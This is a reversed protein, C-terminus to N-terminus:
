LNGQLLEYRKAVLSPKEIIGATRVSNSLRTIREGNQRVNIKYNARVVVKGLYNADATKFVYILAPDEIDFLIAQPQAIIEPLRLLDDDSVATGKILKKYDRMAHILQKDLIEITADTSTIGREQLLTLTETDVFGVTKVENKGRGSSLVADAFFRYDNADSTTVDEIRGELEKLTMASGAMNVMDSLNLNRNEYMELRGPELIELQRSREQDAFWDEYTIGAAVPGGM